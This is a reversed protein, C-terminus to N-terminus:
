ALGLGAHWAGDRGSQRAVDNKMAPGIRVGKGILVNAGINSNEGIQANHMVHSFHWIKTDKGISCPYDIVATDHSYFDSTVREPAAAEEKAKRAGNSKLSEYCQQLVKLTRLGERGDSRPRRRTKICDLFHLCEMKLPEDPAIDVSETDGRHPLPTRNVWEFNCNFIQLKKDPASDEFVAMKKDGIIVLRHEKFPNMWCVHIHGGVGSPFRLTSITVDEIDKQLHCFGAANVENPCEDLLFLVMSIDHPAFSWLINEESRVKGMSLRNSYIYQIKGLDGHDIIEKLKLVGPHYLLIHGVMLIANREKAARVLEEGDSISLALPKEVLVDKGARLAKLAVEHHTEAPTAVVIGRIEADALVEEYSTAVSVGRFAKVAEQAIDQDFDFVQKLAGLSYFNRVHNKGWYGTGVVAIKPRDFGNLTNMKNATM